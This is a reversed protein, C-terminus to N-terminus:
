SAECDARITENPWGNESKEIASKAEESASEVLCRHFKQISFVITDRNRPSRSCEIGDSWPACNVNCYSIDCSITFRPLRM